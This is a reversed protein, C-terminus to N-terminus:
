LFLGSFCRIDEGECEVGVDENHRCNPQSQFANGCSTLDTENGICMLDDLLIPGRGPGYYAEERVKVNDRYNSREKHKLQLTSM